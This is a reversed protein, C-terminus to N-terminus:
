VRVWLGNTENRVEGRYDRVGGGVNEYMFRGGEREREGKCM